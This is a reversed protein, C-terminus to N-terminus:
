VVGGQHTAALAREGAGALAAACLDALARRREVRRECLTRLEAWAPFWKGDPGTPWTRCAYVVVDGPYRSLEEAYAMARLEATTEGEHRSVCLAGLRSLEASILKMGAPELSPELEKLCEHLPGAIGRPDGIVRYGLFQVDGDTWATQSQM